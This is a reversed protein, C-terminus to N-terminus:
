YIASFLEIFQIELAKKFNELDLFATEPIKLDM